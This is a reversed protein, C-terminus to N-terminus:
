EPHHCQGPTSVPGAVPCGAVDQGGPHVRASRDDLVFDARIVEPRVAELRPLPGEVQLLPVDM